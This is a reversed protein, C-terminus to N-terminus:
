RRPVVSPVAGAISAFVPGDQAGQGKYFHSLLKMAKDTYDKSLTRFHNVLAVKKEKPGEEMLYIASNSNAFQISLKHVAEQAAYYKAPPQLGGEIKTPDNGIGIWNSASRLFTELESNEFWQFYYTAEVIDGPDPAVTLVVQGIPADQSTVAVLTSNVFAGEPTAPATFDTLFRKEFTFFTKNTGDVQGVLQKLKREKDKAGDGILNRLDTTPDAWSM